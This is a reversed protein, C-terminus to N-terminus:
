VTIAGKPSPGYKNEGPTGDLCGYDVAMYITLVAFVWFAGQWQPRAHMLLPVVILAIPVGHSVVNLWFTRWGSFGRDHGRKVSIAYGPWAILLQLALFILAIRVPREFIRITSNLVVSLLVTVITLAITTVWFDSRTMRGSLSFLGRMFTKAISPQSM